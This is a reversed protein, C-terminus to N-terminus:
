AVGGTASGVTPPTKIPGEGRQFARAARNGSLARVVGERVASEAAAALQKRGGAEDVTLPEHFEVVVDIPGMEFAQWLHPVLEMDGYWAFFPRNERGMPVGHLSVYAVSVPQVAAHIARHNVDEGIALEAASFLTSKFTLVRNGDSSTGEPFVMLTDGEILRKRISDRDERAKVRSRRVFISRQLRALLGFFAWTGVEQKAVFSIPTISSLIPIDLWGSHNSMMLAAGKVPTGITTVRIGFLRCVLRHYVLPIRLRLRSDLKLALGQLPIAAVTMLLFASFIIAARLTAM